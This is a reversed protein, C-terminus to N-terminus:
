GVYFIYLRCRLFVLYRVSVLVWNRSIFAITIFLTICTKRKKRRKIQNQGPTSEAQTYSSPPRPVPVNVALPSLPAPAQASTRVPSGLVPGGRQGQQKPFLSARAVAEPHRPLPSLTSGDERRGGPGGSPYPRWTVASSERGMICRQRGAEEEGGPGSQGEFRCDNWTSQPRLPSADAGTAM